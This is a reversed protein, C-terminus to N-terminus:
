ATSTAVFSQSVKRQRGNELNNKSPFTGSELSGRGVDRARRRVDSGSPLRASCKEPFLKKVQIQKQSTSHFRAHGGWINDSFFKM